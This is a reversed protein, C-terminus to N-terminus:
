HVVFIIKKQAKILVEEVSSITKKSINNQSIGMGEQFKTLAPVVFPVKRRPLSLRIHKRSATCSYEVFSSYIM